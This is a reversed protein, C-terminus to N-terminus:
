PKTLLNLILIGAHRDCYNKGNIEWKGHFSCRNDRDGWERYRVSQDNLEGDCPPCHRAPPKLRKVKPVRKTM